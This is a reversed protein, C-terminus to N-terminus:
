KGPRGIFGAIHECVYRDNVGDTDIILKADNYFVERGPLTKIIYDLLQRNDMGKIKPRKERGYELRSVLKQPSMKLYVTRGARNMLEMNDGHCPAGGGTSVIAHVGEKELKELLERERLRFYDEGHVAFIESVKMGCEKEIEADMDIFRMGTLSAVKRGISTKGCGMFGVLFIIM